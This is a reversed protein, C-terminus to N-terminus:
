EIGDLAADIGKKETTPKKAVKSQQPKPAM